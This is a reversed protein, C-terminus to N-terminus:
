KQRGVLPTTGLFSKMTQQPSTIDGVILHDASAATQWINEKPSKHEWLTPATNQSPHEVYYVEPDGLGPFIWLQKEAPKSRM